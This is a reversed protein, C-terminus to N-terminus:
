CKAIGHRFTGRRCSAVSVCSARSPFSRRALGHASLFRRRRILQRRRVPPQHDAAPDLGASACCRARCGQLLCLGLCSRKAPWVHAPCASRLRSCFGLLRRWGCGRGIAKASRTVGVPSRDGRRFDIPASAPPVFPVHTRVPLFTSTVRAYRHARALGGHSAFTAHGGPQPILGAFPTNFGMLATPRRFHAPFSRRRGALSLSARVPLPVGRSSPAIQRIVRQPRRLRLSPAQTTRTTRSRSSM